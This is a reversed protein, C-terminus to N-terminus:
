EEKALARQRVRAIDLDAKPTQETRKTFAHLLVIRRGPRFCYIIRFPGESHPVRIEQLGEGLSRSHPMLLRNERDELMALVAYVRPRAKKSLGQLFDYVPRGGTSTRYDDVTWIPPDAV